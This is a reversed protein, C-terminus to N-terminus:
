KTLNKYISFYITNIEELNYFEKSSMSIDKSNFFSTELKMIIESFSQKSFEKVCFGAKTKITIEEVDGVNNNCIIPIGMALLEGM